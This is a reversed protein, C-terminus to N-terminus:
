NRYRPWYPPLPRWEPKQPARPRVIAQRLGDLGTRRFARLSALPLDAFVTDNEGREVLRCLDRRWRDTRPAWARCDSFEGNNAVAIIANLQVGATQILHDYSATDQNWSPVAVLEVRGLLDSLRGAEILESCILVSLRGYPSDVVTRPRVMGHTVPPFGVRRMELERREVRAPYLKTWPWAAASQWPGPMAIWAQNFVWPHDRHHLYELGVVLGFLGWRAIYNAIPRFWDRPLSLEPLILLNHRGPERRALRSTADLIQTVGRLRAVTLVPRGVTSGTVPTACGAFAEPSSLLNGLILRPDRVSHQLDLPGPPIRVTREDIVRGVPDTYQTGRIANVLALLRM